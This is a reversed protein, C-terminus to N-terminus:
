GGEVWLILNEVKADILNRFLGVDAGMKGSNKGDSFYSDGSLIKIYHGKGDFSGKFDDVSPIMGKPIEIDNELTVTWGAMGQNDPYCVTAFHKWGAETKITMTKAATDWVFDDDVAQV